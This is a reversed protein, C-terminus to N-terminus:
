KDLRSTTKQETRGEKRNGSDRCLLLDPAIYRSRQFALSFSFFAFYEGQFHRKRFQDTMLKSKSIFRAKM